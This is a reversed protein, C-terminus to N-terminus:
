KDYRRGRFITVFPVLAYFVAVKNYTVLIDLNNHYVSFQTVTELSFQTVTDLILLAGSKNLKWISCMVYM